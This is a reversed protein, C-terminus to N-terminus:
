SEIKGVYSNKWWDSQTADYIAKCLEKSEDLNLRDAQAYPRKKTKGELWIIAEKNGQHEYEKLSIIQALTDADKAIKSEITEREEYEKIIEFLAADQYIDSQDKMIAKIDITTYKKHVWNPDGSRAETWDHTICMIIVREVNAKLMKALFMGIVVVLYSHSAINDSLDDTMLTQRQSRAIKRLSSIEFLFNALSNKNM